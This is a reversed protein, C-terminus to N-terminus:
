LKVDASTMGALAIAPAGHYVRGELSLRSAVLSGSGVVCNRAVETHDNFTANLGLFSGAGIRCFGGVAVHSSVFVHDEIVTRHGIVNGSHLFVNDGLAVFPQLVNMEAVLCNEGMQVNRWVSALSSVYTACTYGLGKVHGFLRARLQNVGTASVAVFAEFDSPPYKRPLDELAVTPRGDFETQPLHDREASFAVVTRDTDHTFYQDALRAWEGTGIIVLPKKSADDTPHTPGVDGVETRNM